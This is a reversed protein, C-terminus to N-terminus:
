ICSDQAREASSEEVKSLSVDDDNFTKIVDRYGNSEDDTVFPAMAPTNRLHARLRLHLERSTEHLQFCVM